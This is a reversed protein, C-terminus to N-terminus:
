RGGFIWRWIRVFFNVKNNASLAKAKVNMGNPNSLSVIKENGSKFQYDGITQDKKIPAEVTKKNLSAVLTKGDAPDWITTKNKLGL